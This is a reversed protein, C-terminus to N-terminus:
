RPRGLLTLTSRGARVPGVLAVVGAGPLAVVSRFRPVDFVAAVDWGRAAARLVARGPEGLDLVDARADGDLDVDVIPLAGDIRGARVDAAAALALPPAEGLHLALGVRGTLVVGSVAVLNTDLVAHIPRGAGDAGLLLALGEVRRDFAVRSFPAGAASEVVVIRSAEPMAGASVGVLVRGPALRVRLDDDGARVLAALDRQVPVEGLRDNDRLFVALHGEHLAVLDRDGDGDADVSQLRPAYLSLAAGYSRESRLARQEQGSYARARQPLRLLRAEDVVAGAPDVRVLLLGEATVLVREDPAAPCASAAVLLRDDAVALLPRAALLRQGSATVLGAGDVFVVGDGCVDFAVADRPVAPGPRVRGSAVDILTIRRGSSARQSPVAAPASDPVSSPGHSSVALTAAGDIRGAVVDGADGEVAVNL